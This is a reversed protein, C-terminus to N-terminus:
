YYFNMGEMLFIKLILTQYRKLLTSITFSISIKHSITNTIHLPTTLTYSIIYFFHLFLHKSIHVVLYIYKLSHLTLHHTYSLLRITTHKAFSSPNEAPITHLSIFPMQSSFTSSHELVKKPHGAM